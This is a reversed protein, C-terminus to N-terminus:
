KPLLFLEMYGADGGPSPRDTPAPNENDEKLGGFRTDEPLKHDELFM